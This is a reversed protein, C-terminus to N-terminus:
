PHVEQTFWETPIDHGINMGRALELMKAGVATFQAGMGIPNFFCTIEDDSERGAARGAFVDALTPLNPWDVQKRRAFWEVNDDLERLPPTGVTIIDQPTAEHSHVVIRMPLDFADVPLEANRIVGVHMGPKIWAAKIVPDISNTACLIVDADAVATEPDACITVARGLEERIEEGFRERNTRNPSYVRISTFDRVACAALLQSGAQWGSGFLALIKANKRAMKEIGLGSTGGVRMRQIYGDPVIALPEGTATSFLLVLGVWRGNVAPTKEKRVNGAREHWTIIDSNLRISGVGLRPILGDMSKLVYVGNPASTASYMDTRGRNVARGHGLEEYLIRLVDLVDPMKLVRRMEDISYVKM